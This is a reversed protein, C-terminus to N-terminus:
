YDEYNIRYYNNFKNIMVTTRKDLINLEITPSLYM